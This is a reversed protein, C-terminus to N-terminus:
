KSSQTTTNFLIFTIPSLLSLLPPPPLLSITISISAHIYRLFSSTTTIITITILLHYLPQTPPSFFLLFTFNHCVQLHHNLTFFLPLILLSLTFLPPPSPLTLPSPLHHSLPPSSTLISIFSYITLLSNSRSFILHLPLPLLFLFLLLFISALLLPQNTLVHQM